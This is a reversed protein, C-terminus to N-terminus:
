FSVISEGVWNVNPPRVEGEAPEEDEETKKKEAYAGTQELGSEFSFAGPGFPRGLKFEGTYVAAGKLVWKGTKIQGSEWEGTMLSSDAGFEYTGQGHKKDALFGGSYIDGSKKYTYTGEGQMQLLAVFHETLVILWRSLISVRVKNEFWEGEYVNGNPFVMKGVGHKLGDKYNGEYRAKEVPTEDEESGAGMWIYTGFGQKIREADFTGACIIFSLFACHHSYEVM